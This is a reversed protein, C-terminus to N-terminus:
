DTDSPPTISGPPGSRGRSTRDPSAGSDTQHAAAAEHKSRLYTALPLTVTDAAFSLGLDAGYLALVALAVVAEGKGDGGAATSDGGPWLGGNATADSAFQLDRVVGGYNDPDGSALNFVTGCGSPPILM